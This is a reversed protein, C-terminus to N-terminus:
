IQKTFLADWSFKVQSGTVFVDEGRQETDRGAGIETKPLAALMAKNAEQEELMKTCSEPKITIAQNLNGVLLAIHHDSILEYFPPCHKRVSRETVKLETLNAQYSLFCRCNIWGFMFVNNSHSHLFVCVRVCVSVYMCVQIVCLLRLVFRVNSLAAKSKRFLQPLGQQGTVVVASDRMRYGTM